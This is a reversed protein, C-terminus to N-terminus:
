TWAAKSPAKVPPLGAGQQKRLVRGLVNRGSGLCAYQLADALDSWPRIKDPADDLEGTSRKKKFRYRGRMAQALDPCHATDLLFAAKGNRQQNLWGEVARLRPSIRNTTAPFAVLGLRKLIDYVNEEGTEHRNIGSPDGVAVVLYGAFRDSSLLPYLEEEFFVEIGCNERHTEALVMLRGMGDVQTVVAAPHRAFDLGVVLPWGAQPELPKDSEHFGAIYSSQFVAQGSLSRGWRAFVYKESWEQSAGDLLVGYYDPPLNEINEAEPNVELDEYPLSLVDDQMEPDRAQLAPPQTFLDWNSPLDLVVREYWPNDEGSPNSDGILGRWTYRGLRGSPFRGLRGLLATVLELDVEVFENIYAGTLQTSLLRRQDEITDLPIFMWESRVDSFNLYLTSDSVKYAALPGLLQQVDKLVTDKLQKLTNRVLAFRTYRLGDEPAKAQQCARRLLEMISATTKGSGVPGVVLRVFAESMMYDQLTPTPTYDFGSKLM